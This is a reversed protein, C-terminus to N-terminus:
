QSSPVLMASTAKAATIMGFKMFEVPAFVSLMM